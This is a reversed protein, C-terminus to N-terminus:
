MSSARSYRMFPSMDQGESQDIVLNVLIAITKHRLFFEHVPHFVNLVSVDHRVCLLLPLVMLNVAVSQRPRRVLCPSVALVTRRMGVKNIKM